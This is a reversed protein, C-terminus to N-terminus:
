PLCGTVTIIEGPVTQLTLLKSRTREEKGGRSVLIEDAINNALRLEAGKESIIEISIIQNEKMEASVLFAGETRMKEFSVAHQWVKIGTGQHIFIPIMGHFDEKYSAGKFDRGLFYDIKFYDIM